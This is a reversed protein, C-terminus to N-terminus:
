PEAEEDGGGQQSRWQLMLPFYSKFVYLLDKQSNDETTAVALWRGGDLVTREMM